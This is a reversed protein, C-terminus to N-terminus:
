FPLGTRYTVVFSASYPHGLYYNIYREGQSGCIGTSGEIWEMFNYVKKPNVHSVKLDDVHFCVEMQKGGIIKNAVCPDHPKLGFGKGRM